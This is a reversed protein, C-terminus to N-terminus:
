MGPMQKKQKNKALSPDMEIAKDCLAMGKDKEGKKQYSLGIMYLASANTKDLELIKDWHNIAEDYQKADYFAEAIMNLLNMDSPRRQLIENMIALGEKFKKANLYAIGLNELYENDRKIGKEGAEIMYKLANQDDHMGYYMLAMEYIWYSQSPDIALAKQFYPVAQKYNMMDAYAKAVLYPIEAKNPEEKAAIDLQKIADGYFEKEYHAKGIYYAVKENPEAKKLLNAYKIADDFQRMNFSLEMIQKYTAASNDGLGELQQFKERAQHYRRLDMYASALESVIEKDSKNYSYAKEFHKLSEMRRGKAKEEIGKQLFLTSSDTQSFAIVSLGAFAATLIVKRM